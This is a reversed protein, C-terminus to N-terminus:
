QRCLGSILVANEVVDNCLSQQTRVVLRIANGLTADRREDFLQDLRLVTALGDLLPQHIPHNGLDVRLETKLHIFNQVVRIELGQFSGPFTQLQQNIAGIKALVDLDFQQVDRPLVQQFIELVRRFHGLGPKVLM